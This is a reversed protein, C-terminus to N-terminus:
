GRTWILFRFLIRIEVVNREYRLLTPEWVEIQLNLWWQIRLMCPDCTMLRQRFIYGAGLMAIDLTNPKALCRGAEESHLLGISEWLARM